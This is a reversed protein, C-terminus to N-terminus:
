GTGRLKRVQVHPHYYHCGGHTTAPILHTRKQLTTATDCHRACLFCEIHRDERCSVVCAIWVRSGDM